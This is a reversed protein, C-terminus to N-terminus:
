KQSDGKTIRYSDSDEHRTSFEIIISDELAEIQHPECRNIEIVNGEHLNHQKEDANNLDFYHLRLYGKLVYFTEKKDIHFHMSFKKGKDFYLLKGCYEDNNTVIVERGWGKKIIQEAEKIIM